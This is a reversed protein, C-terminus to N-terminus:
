GWRADKCSSQYAQLVGVALHVLSLTVLLGMLRAMLGQSAASRMGQPVYASRFNINLFVHVVDQQKKWSM